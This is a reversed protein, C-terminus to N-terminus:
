AILADITALRVIVSTPPEPPPAVPPPETPPPTVPPPTVPPPPTAKGVTVRFAPIAGQFKSWTTATGQRYVMQAKAFASISHQLDSSVWGDINGNTTNRPCLLWYKQGATIAPKLTSAITVNKASSPPVTDLVDIPSGPLGNADLTLVWTRPASPTISYGKRVTAVTVSGVVGGVSPTFQVGVDAPTGLRAKGDIIQWQYSTPVKDGDFSTFATQAVASLCLIFALLYRM